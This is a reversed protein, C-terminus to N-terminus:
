RGRHRRKRVPLPPTAIRPVKVSPGANPRLVVRTGPEYYRVPFANYVRAGAKTSLIRRYPDYATTSVNLPTGAGTYLLVDHLLRGDRTYPYINDVPAGNYALGPVPETQIIISTATAPQARHSLHAAVPIAAALLVVNLVALPLRARMARRSWLGLAISAAVALLIAVAGLEANGIRPVAGHSRSWSAGAALALAALAVYGRVAWWIPALERLFRASAVVRPDSAVREIMERLGAAPPATSPHLGAASRLEAAFDEPPGLQAAVSGGTESATEHLSAEVEALLDDREEAPVDALAARVRALYTEVDSPVHAATTV